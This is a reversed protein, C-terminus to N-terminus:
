NNNFKIVNESNTKHLKKKNPDFLANDPIFCCGFSFIGIISM